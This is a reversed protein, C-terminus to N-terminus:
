RQQRLRDLLKAYGKLPSLEEESIRDDQIIDAILGLVPDKSISMNKNIPAYGGILLLTNANHDNLKLVKILLIVKDRSTVAREGREVRSIYSNDAGIRKALESQSIGARKRYQRLIKGFEISQSDM